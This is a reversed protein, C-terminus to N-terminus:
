SRQRGFSPSSPTPSLESDEKRRSLIPLVVDKSLSTARQRLINPVVFTCLVRELQETEFVRSSQRRLRHEELRLQLPLQAVIGSRLWPSDSAVGETWASGPLPAQRSRLLLVTRISGSALRGIIIVAARQSGVSHSPLPLPSSSFPRGVEIPWAQSGTSESSFSFPGIQTIIGFIVLPLRIRGGILLFSADPTGILAPFAGAFLVCAVM